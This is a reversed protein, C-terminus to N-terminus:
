NPGTTFSFSYPQALPTGGKSKLNTSISVTYTTSSALLSSPIFSVLHLEYGYTFDFVGDINPSINFAYRVTGTDISLNAYIQIFRNRAVYTEGNYPYSWSVNFNGTTFRITQNTPLSTGDIGKIASNLVIIYETNPLLENSHRFAFTSKNNGPYLFYGSVSPQIQFGNRISSTDLPGSFTFTFDDEQNFGVSGSDPNSHLFLFQETSFNTIFTHQLSNGYVDTTGEKVNITYETNFKFSPNPTFILSLSDNSLNWSGTIAPIIQISSATSITVSSNFRISLNSQPDFNKSGKSPFVSVVRFHPEPIYTFSINSVPHNGNIDEITTDITISYAKGVEYDARNYNLSDIISFNVVSTAESYYDPAIWVPKEFGRVIISSREFSALNM